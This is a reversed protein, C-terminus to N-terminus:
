FAGVKSESFVYFFSPTPFHSWILLMLISVLACIAAGCSTSVSRFIFFFTAMYFKRCATLIKHASTKVGPQINRIQTAPQCCLHTTFLFSSPSFVLHPPNPASSLHTVLPFPSSLRSLTASFPSCLRSPPSKTTPTSCLVDSIPGNLSSRIANSEVAKMKMSWSPPLHISLM